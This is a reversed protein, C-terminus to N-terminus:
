CPRGRQYNPAPSSTRAVGLRRLCARIRDTFARIRYELFYLTKVVLGERAIANGANGGNIGWWAVCGRCKLPPLPGRVRWRLLRYRWGNWIRGFSTKKLDGLYQDSICCPTVVGNACVYPESWPSHCRRPFRGPESFIGRIRRLKQRFSARPPPAAQASYPPPLELTVGLQAAVARAEEMCRNARDPENRLSQEDFPHGHFEYDEVHVAEIGYRAALRVVGALEHINARLGVFNLMFRARGGYIARLRKIMALRKLIQEFRGGQRVWEFTEKTAGDVSIAVSVPRSVLRELRSYNLLSGNTVLHVSSHNRVVMTLLEDFRRSLTPEGFGTIGTHTVTPLIEAGIRALVDERLDEAYYAGYGKMCTRCHYNCKTTSEITLQTPASELRLPRKQFERRNLDQNSKQLPTLDQSEGSGLVSSTTGGRRRRYEVYELGVRADEDNPDREAAQRYLLAAQELRGERVHRDAADVLTQPTDAIM